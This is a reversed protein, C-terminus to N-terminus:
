EASGEEPNRLFAKARNEEDQEAIEAAIEDAAIQRLRRVESLRFKVPANPWFTTAWKDEDITQPANQLAYKLAQVIYSQSLNPTM